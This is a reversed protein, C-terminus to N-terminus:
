TQIFTIETGSVPRYYYKNEITTIEPKNNENDSYVLLIDSKDELVNIVIGIHLEDRNDKPLIIDGVNFPCALTIIQDLYM